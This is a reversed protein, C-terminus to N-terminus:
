TYALRSRADCCPWGSGGHAADLSCWTCLPARAVDIVHCPFSSWAACSLGFFVIIYELPASNNDCMTSMGLIDINRARCGHSPWFSLLSFAELGGLSISLFQVFQVGYLFNGVPFISALSLLRRSTGPPHFTGSFHSYFFFVYM